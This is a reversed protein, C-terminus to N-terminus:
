DLGEWPDNIIVFQRSTKPDVKGTATRAKLKSKWLKHVRDVKDIELVGESYLIGEPDDRYDWIGTVFGKGEEDVDIEMALGLPHFFIRNVEQLFGFDKFEKGTIYNIKTM